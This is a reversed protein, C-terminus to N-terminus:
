CYSNAYFIFVYRANCFCVYMAKDYAYYLIGECFITYIRDLTISPPHGVGHLQQQILDSVM